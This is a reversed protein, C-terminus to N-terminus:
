DNVGFFIYEEVENAEKVRPKKRAKRKARLVAFHSDFYVWIHPLFLYCGYFAVISALALIVNAALISAGSFLLLAIIIAFLSIASFIQGYMTDQLAKNYYVRRSETTWVEKSEAVSERLRDFTVVMNNISYLLLALIIIVTEIGFSLRTIALLGLILLVNHTLTIIGAVAYSWSFRIALYLLSVVILAAFAKLANVITAQGSYPKYDALTYNTKLLEISKDSDYFAAKEAEFYDNIAEKSTNDLHRDFTVVVNYVTVRNRSVTTTDLGYAAFTEKYQVLDDSSYNVHSTGITVESPSRKAYAESVFFKIVGDETSFKPDITKFYIRTGGSMQSNYNFFKHNSVQGILGIVIGLLVVLAPGIILKKFDFLFNTKDFVSKKTYEELNSIDEIEKSSVGFWETKGELKKNNCVLSLLLRTLLVVVIIISVQTIIMVAAFSKVVQNGLLYLALSALTVLVTSDLITSVSKKSGETYSRALSKGKRIEDKIREVLIVNANVALTIGITLAAVTDSGFLGGILNYSALVLVSHLIISLIAILGAFRYAIIMLIAIIALGILAALLVRNPVDEGLVSGHESYYEETLTYNVPDTSLISNLVAMNTETFAGQVTFDEEIPADIALTSLVKWQSYVNNQLNAYSDGDFGTEEKTNESYTEEFGLWFVIASTPDNEKGTYKRAQATTIEKLKDYNKIKVGMYPVGDRYVLSIFSILEEGTALLKDDIDRLSIKGNSILTNRILNLESESNAPVTVRIYEEDEVSVQPYSINLANLRDNVTKTAKTMVNKLATGQYSVGDSTTVKYLIDYGGQFETGAKLRNTLTPVGAIAIVIMAIALSIFAILRRM